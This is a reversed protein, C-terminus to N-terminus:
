ETCVGTNTISLRLQKLLPTFDQGVGEDLVHRHISVDVALYTGPQTILRGFTQDSVNGGCAVATQAIEINPIGLVIPLAETIVNKLGRHVLHQSAGPKGVVVRSHPELRDLDDVGPEPSPCAPRPDDARLVSPSTAATCFLPCHCNSSNCGEDDERGEHEANAGCSRCRSDSSPGRRPRRGRCGGLHGIRKRCRGDFWRWAM